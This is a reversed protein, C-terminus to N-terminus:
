SCLKEFYDATLSIVDVSTAAHDTTGWGPNLNIETFYFANTEKHRMFDAVFIEFGFVAFVKQALTTLEATYEPDTAIMEGGQAENSRFDGKPPAKKWICLVEGANMHVRYEFDHPVFEQFLLQAHPYKEQMDALQAATHILKVGSGHTGFDTKAVFPVGLAASIATFDVPSRYLSKPVLLGHAEATETEYTKANALPQETYHLNITKINHERLFAELAAVRKTSIDTELGSRYYVLDYSTLSQILPQNTFNEIPMASLDIVDVTHGRGRLVPALQETITPSNLQAFIAIRLHSM